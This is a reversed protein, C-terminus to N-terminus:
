IPGVAGFALGGLFGANGLIGLGQAVVAVCLVGM